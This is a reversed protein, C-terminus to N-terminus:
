PLGGAAAACDIGIGAPSARLGLAAAGAPDQAAYTRADAALQLAGWRTWRGECVAGVLDVAGDRPTHAARSLPIAAAAAAVLLLGLLLEPVPSRRM